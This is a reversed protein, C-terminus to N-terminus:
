KMQYHVTETEGIIKYGPPKDLIFTFPIPERIGNVVSSDIGDVKSHIKDITSFNTIKKSTYVGLSVANNANTPKYDWYPTFRSLTNFFSKKDFRLTGFTGGSRKSILKTKMSIHDNELQITVQHDGM